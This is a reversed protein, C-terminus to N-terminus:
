SAQLVYTVEEDENNKNPSYHQDVVRKCLSMVKAHAVLLKLRNSKGQSLFDQLESIQEVDVVAASAFM